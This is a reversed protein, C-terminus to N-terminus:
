ESKNCEYTSVNNADAGAMRMVGTERAEHAVRWQTFGESGDIATQAEFVEPNTGENTKTLTLTGQPTGLVVENADDKYTADIKLEPTCLYTLQTVGGNVTAVTDDAVDNISADDSALVTNNPEAPEASMSQEASINDELSAEPEPKQQCASISIASALLGTIFVSHRLHGLNM